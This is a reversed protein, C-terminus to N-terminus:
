FIMWACAGSWYYKCAQCREANYQFKIFMRAQKGDSRWNNQYKKNPNKKESKYVINCFQSLGFYVSHWQVPNCITYTM